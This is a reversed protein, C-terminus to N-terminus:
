EDQGQLSALDEAELLSTRFSFFSNLMPSLYDIQKGIRKNQANLRALLEQCEGASGWDVVVLDNHILSNREDLLSFLVRAHEEKQEESLEVNLTMCLTDEFLDDMSLNPNPDEDLLKLWAGIAQGLTYRSIKDAKRRFKEKIASQRGEITEIKALLKLKQELLQFNFLNRGVARFVADRNENNTLSQHDDSM